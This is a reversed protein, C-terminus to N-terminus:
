AAPTQMWTAFGSLAHFESRSDVEIDPMFDHMIGAPANRPGPEVVKTVDAARWSKTCAASDATPQIRRALEEAGARVDFLTVGEIGSPPRVSIQLCFEAFSIKARNNKRRRL